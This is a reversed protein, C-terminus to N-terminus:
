LSTDNAVNPSNNKKMSNDRDGMTCKQYKLQPMGNTHSVFLRPVLSTEMDAKNERRFYELLEVPLRRHHSHNSMHPGYKSPQIYSVMMYKLPLFDFATLFKPNPSSFSLGFLLPLPMYCLEIEIKKVRSVLWQHSMQAIRPFIHRGKHVVTSGRPGMMKDVPCDRSLVVIGIPETNM